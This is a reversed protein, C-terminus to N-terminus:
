YLSSINLRKRQTSMPIFHHAAILMSDVIDDHQSSKGTFGLMQTELSNLHKIHKIKGQQYWTHATQALKTKSEGAKRTYAKGAIPLKNFVTWTAKGLANDEIIVQELEPYQNVLRIVHSRMSEPDYRFGESYVIYLKNTQNDFAAVTYATMDNKPGDKKAPDIFLKWTLTSKGQPLDEIKIDEPRWYSSDSAIPNNQYDKQFIAFNTRQQNEIWEMSYQTPWASSNNDLLPYYRVHMDLGSAWGPLEGAINGVVLTHMISNYITSTGIWLFDANPGLPYLGLAITLRKAAEDISYFGEAKEIDDIIVLKPRSGDDGTLGNIQSTISFATFTMNSSTVYRESSSKKAKIKPYISLLSKNTERHRQVIAMKERALRETATVYVINDVYGNAQLWEIGLLTWTSKGMGRACILCDTKRKAQKYKKYQAEPRWKKAIGEFHECLDIHMKCISLEGTLENQLEDNHVILAYDLMSTSCLYLSGRRTRALMQREEGWYKLLDLEGQETLPYKGIYLKNTHTDSSIM